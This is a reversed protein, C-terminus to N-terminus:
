YYNLCMLWYTENKLKKTHTTYSQSVGQPMLTGQVTSISPPSVKDFKFLPCHKHQKGGTPGITTHVAPEHM